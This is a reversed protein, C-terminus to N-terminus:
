EWVVNNLPNLIRSMLTTIRHSNFYLCHHLGIFIM